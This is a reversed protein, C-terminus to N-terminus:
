DVKSWNFFEIEFEPRDAPIPLSPFMAEAKYIQISYKVPWRAIIKKPFWRKIYLTEKLHQWWSSPQRIELNSNAQLCAVKRILQIVLQEVDPETWTRLECNKFPVKYQAKFHRTHFRIMEFLIQENPDQILAM